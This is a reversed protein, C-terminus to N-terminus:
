PEKASGGTIWSLGATRGAQGIMALFADELQDHAHEGALGKLQETPGDFLVRGHHMLAVRPCLDDILSLNHSTLLLTKGREAMLRFTDKLVRATPVDLGELPEDLFLIDPGHVLACALSVKRKMGHSYERIRRGRDAGLELLDFLERLRPQAVGSAVGYAIASLLVQEEGTLHEFLRDDSPVYGLRAKIDVADPGVPRGLIDLTGATPCLAGVMMLLTTTKGAGNPGVLGLVTGAMVRLGIGDVALSREGYRKTLGEAVIVAETM